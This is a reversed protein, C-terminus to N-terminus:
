WLYRSTLRMVPVSSNPASPSQMASPRLTRGFISRRSRPTFLRALGGAGPDRAM